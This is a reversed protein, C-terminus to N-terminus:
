MALKKRAETVEPLDPDADKWDNLFHAYAARARERDGKQEYGQGIHFYTLPYNPNIKLIRQYETIAEDPRRSQLYANALCDEYSDMGSTAPLHALAEKFHVIAAATNGTKLELYGRFFDQNRLNQRAGRESNLLNESLRRKLRHIALQDKTQLAILLSGWIAGKGYHIERNAAIRAPRLDGRRLHIQAISGYAIARAVDSHTVRAYRNYYGIAQRYRGQQYYVDALHIIAPEFEHDLGLATNYETIAEEYRGARQYSMGLSDHANAEGPALSVYRQHATIAEQCRGLSLLVVGLGNYLDKAEPDVALGRKLVQVAKEAQEEGLLVRGLRWYAETEFPYRAVIQGLTQVAAPYDERAIAYWSQIYLRDKDTLRNSHQFARELYLRGQDPLFDTVAYTYGIRAYAMAFRPDLAVAKKLLRIAQPTEFAQAKEVGLSYYRYAELNDTMVDALTTQQGAKIGLHASVKLALVDVQTLAQAPTDLILKDAALLQGSHADHLQVDVRVRQDLSAFSGLVIADAHSRRAIDLAEDLRIRDSPKHGMRELLLFLEQRSLVTVQDSRALDTILMDTLGERLWNLETGPSQNDFYMVALTKRGPLQPLVVGSNPNSRTRFGMGVMIAAVALVSLLGFYALYRVNWRNRLATRVSRLRETGRGAVGGLPKSEIPVLPKFRVEGNVESPAEQVAGVFRYGLKPVTKIFRPHRCDDGLAKRIEVICQVLANDTVATDKWINELLEEKSVLRQHRELLYLLVHFAQQRLTQEQGALKVCGLAPDIEVDAFRYILNEVLKM